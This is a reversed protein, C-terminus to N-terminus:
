CWLCSCSGSCVDPHLCVCFAPRCAGACVQEGTQVRRSCTLLLEVATVLLVAGNWQSASSLPSVPLRPPPSAGAPICIHESEAKQRIIISRSSFHSAVSFLLSSSNLTLLYIRSPLFPCLRSCGLTVLRHVFWCFDERITPEISM